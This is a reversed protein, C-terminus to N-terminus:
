SRALMVAAWSGVGGCGVIAVKGGRVRRMGEEGFFSYVRALQERIIHDPLDSLDQPVPPGSLPESGTELIARAKEEDQHRSLSEQVDKALSRRHKRRVHANYSTIIGYTAASAGLATLILQTRHSHWDINMNSLGCRGDVCAVAHILLTATLCHTLLLSSRRSQRDHTGRATDRGSELSECQWVRGVRGVLM